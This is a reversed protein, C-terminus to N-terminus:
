SLRKGQQSGSIDSRTRGSGVETRATHLRVSYAVVGVLLSAGLIPSFMGQLMLALLSNRVLLGVVFGILGLNMGWFLLEDAAPWFREREGITECLVGFLANTMVGLFLLHDSATTLTTPIDAFSNYSHLALRGLLYCLFGLYVVLILASLAFLREGGRVFWRVRAVRPAFRVAFLAAAALELVVGLPLLMAMGLLARLCLLVGAVFALAIQAVGLSPWHDPAPRLRWEAIAMLALTQFGAALVLPHAEASAGPFYTTAGAAQVELLTGITAGLLLSVAALALALQPLGFFRVQPSRMGLWGLLAVMSLMVAAGFIVRALASDVLTALVYAVASAAASVGVVQAIRQELASLAGGFLALAVAVFGLEIWGLAGAHTHAADVDLPIAVLRQQGAIIGIVVSLALLALATQWLLRADEHLGAGPRKPAWTRVVERLRRVSPIRRM